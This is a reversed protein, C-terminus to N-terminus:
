RLLIMALLGTLWTAKMVWVAHKVRNPEREVLRMVWLIPLAAGPLIAVLFRGPVIDVAWIVAVACIFSSAAAQFIRISARRGLRTAVTRVGGRVDGDRDAVTKLIEYALIFLFVLLAALFVIRDGGVTARAGYLLTSASLVGIVANGALVTGKLVLSYAVGLGLIALTLAGMAPGLSLGLVVGIGALALAFLVAEHPSVRGAPLPRAPKTLRDLRADHLDNVVNSAAVTCAIALGARIARGSPAASAGGGLYAGLITAAAAASCNALRMVSALDAVHALPAARKVGWRLAGPLWGHALLPVVFGILVVGLLAPSMSPALLVVPAVLLALLHLMGASRFADPDRSASIAAALLAATGVSLLALGFFSAARAGGAEGLDNRVLPLFLLASLMAQLGVAYRVTRASLAVGAGHPRSGLVIATSRVGCALDNHLDRLAGHVGNVLVILVIVYAALEATVVTWPGALAAGFLTLAGWGLGQVLDIFPPFTTRKGWLDYTAGLAFSAGLASMARHDAGVSAAVGFALPVCLLSFALARGRGVSGVVLPSTRRRPETRDVKWDIVDNLVYGFCHYAVAVSVLAALRARSPDSRSSAAGLLPFLLTSGLASFRVFSALPAM